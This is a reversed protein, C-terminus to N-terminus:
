GHCLSRLEADVNDSVIYGAGFIARGNRDKRVVGECDFEINGALDKMCKHMQAASWTNPDPVYKPRKPKTQQATEIGRSLDGSLTVRKFQPLNTIFGTYVKAGNQYTIHPYILVSKLWDRGCVISGVTLGNCFLFFPVGAAHYFDVIEAQKSFPPNDVVVAGAPYQKMDTYDGGPYFPRIYEFDYRLWSQLWNVVTDFVAPPTMCEDTTRPPDKSFKAIFQEYTEGKAM